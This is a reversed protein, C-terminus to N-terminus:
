NWFQLDHWVRSMLGPKAKKPAGASTPAAKPAPTVLFAKEGPKVLGYQERAIREIEADTQLKDASAALKANESQFVKLRTQAAALSHRQALYTRSPLVFLFLLAALAISGVILGLLRPARV